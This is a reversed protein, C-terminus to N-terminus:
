MGLDIHVKTSEMTATATKLQVDPITFDFAVRRYGDDPMLSDETVAIRTPDSRCMNKVFRPQKTTGPVGQSRLNSELVDDSNDFDEQIEMGVRKRDDKRKFVM